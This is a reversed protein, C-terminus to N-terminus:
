FSETDAGLISGSQHNPAVTRDLSPLSVDQFGTNGYSPRGGRLWQNVVALSEGNGGREPHSIKM